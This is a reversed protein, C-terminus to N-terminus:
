RRHAVGSSFYVYEWRRTVENKKWQGDPQGVCEKLPDAVKIVLVPTGRSAYENLGPMPVWEISVYGIGVSDLQGSLAEAIFSRDAKDGTYVHDYWKYQKGGKYRDLVLDVPNFTSKGSLVCEAFLVQEVEAILDQNHECVKPPAKIVVSTKPDYWDAAMNKRVMEVAECVM